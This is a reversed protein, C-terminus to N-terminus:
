PTAGKQAAAKRADQQKWFALVTNAQFRADDLANHHTGARRILDKCGTMAAFTRYCWVNWFKWPIAYEGRPHHKRYLDELIVIDFNGGNSIPRLDERKEQVKNLANDCFEEFHRFFEPMKLKFDNHEFVKRAESDAKTMWWQMTSATATRGLKIQEHLDFEFLAEAVIGDKNYAVAGLSLVVTTFDNGLTEFDLMVYM